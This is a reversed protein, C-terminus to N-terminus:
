VGVAHNANSTFTLEFALEMSNLALNQAYSGFGQKRMYEYLYNYADSFYVNKNRTNDDSFIIDSYFEPYSVFEFGNSKGDWYAYLEDSYENVNNEASYLLVAFANENHSIKNISSTQKGKLVICPLDNWWVTEFISEM